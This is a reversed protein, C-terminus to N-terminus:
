GSVFAPRPAMTSGNCSAITPGTRGISSMMASDIAATRTIAQALM